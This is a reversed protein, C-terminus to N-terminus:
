LEALKVSFGFATWGQQLDKPLPAHIEIEQGNRTGPLIISEAHLHLRPVAGQVSPSDEEDKPGYKEDGLIPFGAEAAHIRIQHTRGTKPQFAVFAAKDGARELVEFDTISRKGDETDVMMMDKMEGIGKALPLDITGENRLPAPMCIAWYTKHINRSSFLKGMRAATERTRALVLVGSTDRDLRHLLKPRRGESDELHVMLGDIHRTIKMGGQSAIGSPKNIAVLDGDDYIVLSKVFEADDRQPRFWEDEKRGGAFPPIRIVQGATLRLNADVRKGDVRIQGKRVLKQMLSFAMQPLHKRIWRDLRQGDDDSEVTIHKVQAMDKETNEILQLNLCIQM